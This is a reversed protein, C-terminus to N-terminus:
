RGELVQGGGGGREVRVLGRGRISDFGVALALGVGGGGGLSFAPDEGAFFLWVPWLVLDSGERGKRAGGSPIKTSCLVVTEAEPLGGGNSM